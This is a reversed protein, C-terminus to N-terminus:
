FKDRITTLLHSIKKNAIKYYIMKGERRCNVIGSFRLRALQQSIAAQKYPLVRELMSVTKESQTLNYLIKLRGEHGIAKFIDTARKIIESEALNENTENKEINLIVQNM